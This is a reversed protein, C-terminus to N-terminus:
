TFIRRLHQGVALLKGQPTWMRAEEICWAGVWDRVSFHALIWSGEPLREFSGSFM